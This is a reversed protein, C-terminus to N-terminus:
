TTSPSYVCRLTNVLGFKNFVNEQFLRMQAKSNFKLQNLKIALASKSNSIKSMLNRHLALFLAVLESQQFMNQFTLSKVGLFALNGNKQIVQTRFPAICNIFFLDLLLM